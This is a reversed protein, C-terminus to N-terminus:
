KFHEVPVKIVIKKLTSTTNNVIFQPHHPDSPFFVAMYGPSLTLKTYPSKLANYFVCDSEDEYEKSVKLDELHYMKIDEFGELIIQIDVEKKHSEIITPEIKTDYSMVKFYYGEYEFIGNESDVTYENLTEFIKSFIPNKFYLNWNEIKDYIM